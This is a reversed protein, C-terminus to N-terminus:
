RTKKNDDVTEHKEEEKGNKQGSNEKRGSMTENESDDLGMTRMPTYDRDNSATAPGFMKRVWLLFFAIPLALKM